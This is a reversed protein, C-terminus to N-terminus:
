YPFTVEAKPEATPWSGLVNNWPDYVGTAHHITSVTFSLPGSQSNRLPDGAVTLYGNADAPGGIVSTTLLGSWSGYIYAGAINGGSMGVQVRVQPISKGKPAPIPGTFEISKVFCPQSSRDATGKIWCYGVKEALLNCCDAYVLIRVMYHDRSDPFPSGNLYDYTALEDFLAYSGSTYVYFDLLGQYKVIGDWAFGKTLSLDSSGEYMDQVIQSTTELQFHDGEAHNYRESNANADYALELRVFHVDATSTIAYEIWCGDALDVEPHGARNEPDTALLNKGDMTFIDITTNRNAPPKQLAPQHDNQMEAVKQAESQVPNTFKECSALFLLSFALLMLTCVIKKM